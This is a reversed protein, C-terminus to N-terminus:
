DMIHYIRTVIINIVRYLIVFICQGYPEQGIVLLLYSGVGVTSNFIFGFNLQPTFFEM